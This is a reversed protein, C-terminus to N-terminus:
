RPDDGLRRVVHRRGLYGAASLLALAVLLATAEATRAEAVRAGALAVLLYGPFRGVVSVLVFSRTDVGSVGALFCITDDPLGPVLFFLFLVIRGHEAAFADFLAVADDTVFREVLPRGYRRALVFAVYGGVTAGAVSLVTGWVVGFLYGAVFGLVQGPIPAVIVQIAQVVLFTVPALPGTARIATRLAEPDALSPFLRPLGVTVLAAAVVYGVLLAVARRRSRASVFLRPLRRV